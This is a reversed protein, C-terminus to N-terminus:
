HCAKMPTKKKPIPPPKPSDPTDPKKTTSTINSYDEPEAKSIIGKNVSVTRKPIPPGAIEEEESFVSNRKGNTLDIVPMQAISPRREPVRPPTNTPSDNLRTVNDPTAGFSKQKAPVPPPTSSSTLSQIHVFVCLITLQTIIYQLICRKDYQYSDVPLSQTLVKPQMNVASHFAKTVVKNPLM